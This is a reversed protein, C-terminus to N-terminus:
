DSYKFFPVVLFWVVLVVFVPQGRFAWHQKFLTISPISNIFQHTILWLYIFLFEFMRILPMFCVLVFWIYQWRFATYVPVAHITRGKSTPKVTCTANLPTENVSSSDDFSGNRIAIYQGIGNGTTAQRWTTRRSFFTNEILHYCMENVDFDLLCSVHMWFYSGVLM